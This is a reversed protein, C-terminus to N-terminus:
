QRPALLDYFAWGRLGDGFEVQIWLDRASHGIVSAGKEAVRISRAETSPGERVNGRSSFILEVPQAFRLEPRDSLASPVITATRAVMVSFATRANSALYYAGGFNDNRFEQNGMAMLREAARYDGDNVIQPARGQLTKALSESEALATAAEARSGLSGLKAKSRVVELVAEDLQKRALELTDRLRQKESAQVVLELQMAALRSNLARDSEQRAAEAQALRASGDNPTACGALIAIVLMPMLLRAASNRTCM